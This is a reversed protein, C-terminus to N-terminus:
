HGGQDTAGRMSLAHRAVQQRALQDVGLHPLPRPVVHDILGVLRREGNTHGDHALFFDGTFGRVPQLNFHGGGGTVFVM